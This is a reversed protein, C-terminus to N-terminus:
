YGLQRLFKQTTLLYKLSIIFEMRCTVSVFSSCLQALFAAKLFVTPVYNFCHNKKRILLFIPDEYRTVAKHFDVLQKQTATVAGGMNQTPLSKLASELWKCFVQLLLVFNYM